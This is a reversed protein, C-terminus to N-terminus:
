AARLVQLLVCHPFQFSLLMYLAFFLFFIFFFNLIFYRKSLSLVSFFYVLCLCLLCFYQCTSLKIISLNNDYGSFVCVMPMLLNVKM